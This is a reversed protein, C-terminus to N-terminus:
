RVYNQIKQELNATLASVARIRGNCQQCYIIGNFTKNKAILKGCLDCVVNWYIPGPHQGTPVGVVFGDIGRAKLAAWKDRWEQDSDM